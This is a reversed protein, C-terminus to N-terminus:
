KGKEKQMYLCITRDVVDDWNFRGCIYDASEKRYKEVIDPRTLLEELKQKLDEVNGKQFSCAKDQVVEMNEDIDSVLCCNGYSMAELLSVAMGEVDSPLVFIYSNSYLEELIEGQVFGTMVIRSDEQSMTTIQDMYDHSHSSGGAIVLKKDTAIDKFADILYHLGKEPVIRALFLIYEDKELGYKEKICNIEKHEPCIIGNPIYSTERGYEKQFYDKMNESLVILEDAHKAAMREGFRLVKSAFNGWKSRQWDLGHITAVVRIGFLKPIWIMTCPGEAHFHIIDYRGFLSRITALFSYVIANLSSSSLTPITFIRVGNYYRERKEDFEKGSVHYGFRNYADVECGLKVMRTSLEDVVIEVGGERSPIRKHGIMAVRLPRGKKGRPIEKDCASIPRSVYHKRDIGNKGKLWERFLYFVFSFNTDLYRPFLRKPDQGIRFLWEMCFEQMWLPARKITGAHFDFGAGVGLMVGCVRGDHAAMWKEQKPAGLGIWIFDPNCENINCIAEEDEEETMPRFPPSYMGVVNMKPYEEALKVKLADLTEQRSGYFYHRYGKKESLRFIEPMLDPGPVRGAEKFGTHRQVISLPKGDPINMAANNQVERYEGDRYATVTTHVNSVCIYHGKLEDLHQEIYSVTKEMDTINIKTGLISSYNLETTM